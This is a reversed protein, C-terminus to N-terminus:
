KRAKGEERVEEQEESDDAENGTKNGTDNARSAEYSRIYPKLENRVSEVLERICSPCSSRDIKRGASRDCYYWFRAGQAETMQGCSIAAECITKTAATIEKQLQDNM